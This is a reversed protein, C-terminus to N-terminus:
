KEQRSEEKRELYQRLVKRKCIFEEYASDISMRELNKRAM